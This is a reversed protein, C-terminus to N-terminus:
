GSASLIKIAFVLSDGPRIGASPQGNPYGDASTMAVAVTSGVKQGAIAKQFGPVVGNLPFDIAAGRQYSSDFVSGDRGNVGMYCVSVTAAPSVVPGDGAHLTHVQTQTVSFPPTVDVRPATTDTSGTVAVSGTTGTLTWDPTGGSQPLATPCSGAALATDPAAIALVTAAVCAAVCSYVVSSKVATVSGVAGQM